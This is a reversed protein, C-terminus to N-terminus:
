DGLEDLQRVSYKGGIQRFTGALKAFHLLTVQPEAHCDSRKRSDM